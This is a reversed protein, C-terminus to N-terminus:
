PDRRLGTPAAATKLSAAVEPPMYKEDHKALVERAEFSGDPKLRGNAVIGQGERFLDPLIGTYRVVTDHQFDSLTFKVELSAPNREVSGVVVMGGIRFDRAAPAKGAAIDSPSFFYMLNDEFARLILAIAIAMGAVLLAITRM